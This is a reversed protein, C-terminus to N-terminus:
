TWSTHALPPLPGNVWDLVSGDCWIYCGKIESNPPLTAALLSINAGEEISLKGLHMTMDTDVYGPHIFNVNVDKLSKNADIARQQMRTLAGLAM